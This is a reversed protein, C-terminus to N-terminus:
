FDIQCAVLGGAISMDFGFPFPTALDRSFVLFFFVPGM